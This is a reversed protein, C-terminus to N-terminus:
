WIFPTKDLSNNSNDIISLSNMKILLARTLSRSPFDCGLTVSAIAYGTPARGQDM